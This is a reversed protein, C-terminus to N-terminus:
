LAVLCKRISTPDNDVLLTPSGNILGVTIPTKMTVKKEPHFSMLTILWRRKIENGIPFGQNGSEAASDVEMMKPCAERLINKFESYLAELSKQSSSMPKLQLPTSSSEQLEAYREKFVSAVTPVSLAPLEKM